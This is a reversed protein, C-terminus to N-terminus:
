GIKLAKSMNLHGVESTKAVFMDDTIYPRLIEYAAEEGSELELERFNGLLIGKVCDFVGIQHLSAMYTAIKPIGGSLGELFLVSDELRPFYPTGALKLFCRINGGLVKYQKILDEAKGTGQLVKWNIEFLERGGNLYAQFREAQKGQKEWVLNKVQYLVSARGTKAYIANLVTTLDSYGYLLKDSHAICEYDLYPLIENAMDGGSIDFIADITEDAYFGNLVCAREKGSGSVCGNEGAYLYPSEVTELGMNKLMEKLKEILVYEEKAQGNSCAALAVKKM